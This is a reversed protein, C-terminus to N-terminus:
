LSWFVCTLVYVFTYVINKRRLSLAGKILCTIPDKEITAFITALGQFNKM